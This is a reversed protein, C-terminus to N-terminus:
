RAEAASAAGQPATGAGAEGRAIAVLQNIAEPNHVALESLMKRNIDVGAKRLGEIFRSYTLGNDRTAANIRAIWLARFARKKQRRDRYAFTLSRIVSEKATKYLRSRGGRMGEALKFIKHRKQRSSAGKARPM